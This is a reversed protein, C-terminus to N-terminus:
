EAIIEIQAADFLRILPGQRQELVGRVRVTKGKLGALLNLSGKFAGKGKKVVSLTFDQSWNQGFNLYLRRKRDGISLVKGEIVSFFGTRASMKELQNATIIASNKNWLGEKTGIAVHEIKRMAALCTPSTSQSSGNLLAKGSKLYEGQLWKNSRVAFAQVHIVGYRDPSDAHGYVSLSTGVNLIGALNPGELGTLAFTKTSNLLRFTQKRDDITSITSSFATGSICPHDQKQAFANTSLALPLIFGIAAIRM